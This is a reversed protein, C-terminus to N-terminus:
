LVGQRQRRSDVARYVEGMGCAGIRSHLQYPGLMVGARLDM